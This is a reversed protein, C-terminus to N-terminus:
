RRVQDDVATPSYWICRDKVIGDVWFLLGKKKGAKTLPSLLGLSLVLNACYEQAWGSRPNGAADVAMREPFSSPRPGKYDKATM